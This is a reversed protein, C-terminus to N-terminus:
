VWSSSVIKSLLKGVVVDGDHAGVSSIHSKRPSWKSHNRIWWEGDGDSHKTSQRSRAAAKDPGVDNNGKM